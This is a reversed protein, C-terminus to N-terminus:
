PERLIISNPVFNFGNIPIVSDEVLRVQTEKKFFIKFEHTTSKFKVTNLAVSLNSIIYVKGEILQGEFM